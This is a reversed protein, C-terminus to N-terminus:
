AGSKQYLKVRAVIESVATKHTFFDILEGNKDMFYIISSHDVTYASAGGDDEVKQAFVRFATKASEVQQLSGTLGILKDPFGNATVYQKLSEPTDREPDVSIFINQIDKARKGLAHQARGMQILATPCIDPCYSFGFYIMQPRGLFDAETVTLGDQNVLTFPGGIEAKGSTVVKGTQVTPAECATLGSLPILFGIILTWFQKNM